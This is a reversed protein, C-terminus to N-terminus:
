ELKRANIAAGALKLNYLINDLNKIYKAIYRRVGPLNPIKENNYDIDPGRIAINDLFPRYIIPILNYL